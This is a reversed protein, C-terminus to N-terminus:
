LRDNDAWVPATDIVIKNGAGVLKGDAVQVEGSFNTFGGKNSGAGKPGKWEIKSNSPSIAFVRDNSTSAAATETANTDSSVTAKPVNNAPNGAGVLVVVLLLSSFSEVIKM